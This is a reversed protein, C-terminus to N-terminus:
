TAATPNTYLHMHTYATYLQYCSIAAVAKWIFALQQNIRLTRKVNLVSKRSLATKQGYCTCIPEMSPFDGIIEKMELTIMHCSSGGIPPAELPKAVGTHPNMYVNQPTNLIGPNIMDFRNEPRLQDTEGSIYNGSGDEIFKLFEFKICVITNRLIL